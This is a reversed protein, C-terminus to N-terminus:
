QVQRIREILAQLDPDTVASAYISNMADEFPKRVFNGVITNGNSRAKQRSSDELGSWVGRMFRSSERAAERFISKDEDSLGEWARLSM